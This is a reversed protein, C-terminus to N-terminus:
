KTSAFSMRQWLLVSLLSKNVKQSEPHFNPHWRMLFKVVKCERTKILYLCISENFSKKESACIFLLLFVGRQRETQCRLHTEPGNIQKYDHKFHLERRPRRGKQRLTWKRHQFHFVPRSSKLRWSKRCLHVFGALSGWKKQKSFVYFTPRKLTALFLKQFFTLFFLFTNSICLFTKGNYIQLPPPPQPWLTQRSHSRHLFVEATNPEPVESVVTLLHFVIWSESGIFPIQQQRYSWHQACRSINRSIAIEVLSYIGWFCSIFVLVKYIKKLKETFNKKKQTISCFPKLCTHFLSSLVVSKLFLPPIPIHPVQTIPKLSVNMVSEYHLMWKELSDPNENM